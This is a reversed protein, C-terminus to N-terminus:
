PPCRRGSRAARSRAPPAPGAPGRLGKAGRPAPTVIRAERRTAWRHLAHAVGVALPLAVLPAMKHLNRAPALPGDLLDQVPGSLPGGVPGAYGAAVEVFKAELSKPDVRNGMEALERELDIREQALELERVPSATALETGIAGLRKGISDATRKRGPRRREQQQLARTEEVLRVREEELRALIEANRKRQDETLVVKKKSM